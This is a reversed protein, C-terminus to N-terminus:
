CSNWRIIVPNDYEYGLVSISATSLLFLRGESAALGLWKATFVRLFHGSSFIAVDGPVDAIKRLVREARKGIDEISEGGPAGDKFISWNPDQEYIQTRTLGEYKGYNWEVLDPDIEAGEFLHACKCTEVARVLPSLLVKQFHLPKLKERLQM